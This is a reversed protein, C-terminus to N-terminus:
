NSKRKSGSSIANGGDGISSSSGKVSRSRNGDGDDSNNGNNYTYDNESQNSRKGRGRGGGAQNGRQQYLSVGRGANNNFEEILNPTIPTIDPNPSFSENDGDDGGDAAAGLSFTDFDMSSVSAMRSAKPMM